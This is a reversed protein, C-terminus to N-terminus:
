VDSASIDVGGASRGPLPAPHASCPALNDISSKNGTHPLFGDGILEESTDGGSLMADQSM